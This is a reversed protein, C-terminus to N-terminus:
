QTILPLFGLSQESMSIAHSSALRVSVDFQGEGHLALSNIVTIKTIIGM